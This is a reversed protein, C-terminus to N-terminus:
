IPYEWAIPIINLPSLGVHGSIPTQRPVEKEEVLV